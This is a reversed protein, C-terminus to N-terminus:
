DGPLLEKLLYNLLPRGARTAGMRRPSRWVLGLDELHQSRFFLASLSTLNKLKALDVGDATRMGMVLYESAQERRSLATSNEIRAGGNLARDLWATPAREQETALRDGDITLRGHAGPGIGVYDGASWYLNNHVSEQGPVTHNSIEYAPLGFGECIEQTRQYLDAGLDEDPLGRLKKKSLLDGFSTGEEITLQYLSLHSPGMQLAEQLEASWEDLSQHQRAYILDFSAREFVNNAIDWAKRAVEATHLRGLRRLDLDNLAQIGLSVRNIGAGSFDVFKALEVSSPNAELTIEISNRFRWQKRVAELIRGTTTPDMLSPTGGGFFVSDLPRGQTSQGIREIELEYAKAWQGQNVNASVYSNFDCYPCKAACFPWHIYLGFGATPKASLDPDAPSHKV